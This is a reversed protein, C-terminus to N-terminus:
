QQSKERIQQVESENIEEYDNGFNTRIYNAIRVIDEDALFAFSPMPYDGTQSGHIVTELFREKNGVIESSTLAPYIGKLGKGKNKHCSMCYQQYLVDGTKLEEALDAPTKGYILEQTAADVKAIRLIRDDTPAPSTMPNWDHNSTSIYVDGDPSVCIARIRGYMKELFMEERVIEDGQENLNLVRFGQGKLMVVLLANNWEPIKSSSYYDLGAPAITPTWTMLPLITNNKLAFEREIDNDVEGEIFPYGYNGNPLIRNVEDDSADGHESTYIQGNPTVVLGQMNRFGLAYVYSGSVPNDDPVNGDLDMRLIKGYPSDPDQPADRFAQDGTAWLIREPSHFALRSGSHTKGSRHEMVVTPRVLTDQEQEYEYRELIHYRWGDDKVKKYHIYVYPYKKTDPHVLLAQAGEPRPGIPLELIIRKEGTSPNIRMVNGGGEVVWIWDDPGWTLEWPVVLSDAVVSVGLITADLQINEEIEQQFHHTTRPTCGTFLLTILLVYCFTTVTMRETYAM